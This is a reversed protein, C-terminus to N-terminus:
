YGTSGIYPNQQFNYGIITESYNVDHHMGKKMQRSQKEHKPQDSIYNADSVSSSTEM